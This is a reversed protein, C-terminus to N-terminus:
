EQVCARVRSALNEIEKAIFRVAGGREKLKDAEATMVSTTECLKNSIEKYASEDAAERAIQIFSEIKGCIEDLSVGLKEAEGRTYFLLINGQYTIDDMRKRWPRELVHDPEPVAFTEFFDVAEKLSEMFVPLGAFMAEHQDGSRLVDTDASFSIIMLKFVCDDIIKATIEEIPRESLITVLNGIESKTNHYGEIAECLAKGKQIAEQIKDTATKRMDKFILSSLENFFRAINGTKVGATRALELYREYLPWEEAVREPTNRSVLLGVHFAMVNTMFAVDDIAYIINFRETIEDPHEAINATRELGAKLEDAYKDAKDAMQNWFKQVFPYAASLKNGHKRSIAATKKAKAIWENLERIIEDTVKSYTMIIREKVIKRSIATLGYKRYDTPTVGMYAKFSRTFGEHSDYGFHLAIDLINHDTELLARGALTLKRKTVYEMVGEGAIERFLRSYHTRSFYVSGAINEVTLREAIRAEIM